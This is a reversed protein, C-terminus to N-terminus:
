KRCAMVVTFSDGVVASTMSSDLSSMAARPPSVTSSISFLSKM